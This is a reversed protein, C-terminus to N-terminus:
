SGLLRSRARAVLSDKLPRERRIRDFNRRLALVDEVWDPETGLDPASWSRHAGQRQDLVDLILQQSSSIPESEVPSGSSRHHRLRQDLRLVAPDEHLAVRYGVSQLFATLERVVVTPDDLVDDFRTVFTPVGDLNASASRVYREWLALGHTIPFENRVQLSRAVDLADRYVFVAAEPPGIVTKWFPLLLCTRPDKWVFYEHPFAAAVLRAAEDRHGTVRPGAAWDGTLRPPAAWTGGLSLLVDNNFRTLTASENNGSENSPSPPLRDDVSPGQLGLGVLMGTVASTGSRHMGVVYLGRGKVATVPVPAM